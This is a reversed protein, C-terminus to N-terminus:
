VFALSYMAHADGKEAKARMQKVVWWDPPETIAGSELLTTMANRMQLPCPLLTKEMIQNTVPSKLAKGSTEALRVLKSIAEREYVRGDAALIPDEPLELTLPCLFEAELKKAVSRQHPHQTDDSSMLTLKQRKTDDKTDEEEGALRARTFRGIGTM